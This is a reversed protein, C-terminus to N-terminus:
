QSTYVDVKTLNFFNDTVFVTKEGVIQTTNVRGIPEITSIYVQEFCGSTENLYCLKGFGLWNYCV